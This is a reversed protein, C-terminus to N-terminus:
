FPVPLTKQFLIFNGELGVFFELTTKHILNFYVTKISEYGVSTICNPVVYHVTDESMLFVTESFKNM